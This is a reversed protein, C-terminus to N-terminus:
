RDSDELKRLGDLKEEESLFSLDLSGLPTARLRKTACVKEAGIKATVYEDASVPNRQIPPCNEIKWRVWNKDRSLM